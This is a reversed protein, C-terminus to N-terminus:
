SGTRILSAPQDAEAIPRRAVDPVRIASLASATRALERRREPVASVVAGNSRGPNEAIAATIRCAQIVLMSISGHDFSAVHSIQPKLFGAAIPM